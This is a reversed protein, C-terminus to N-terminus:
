GALLRAARALESLAAWADGSTRVAAACREDAQAILADLASPMVLVYDLTVGVLPRGYTQLAVAGDRPWIVIDRLVSGQWDGGWSDAAWRFVDGPGTVDISGDELLMGRSARLLFVPTKGNHNIPGSIRFRRIVNGEPVPSNADSGTETVGENGFAVLGDVVCGTAGYIEVANGDHGYDPSPTAANDHALVDELHVGHCRQLTIGNGGFDDGRTATAIVM